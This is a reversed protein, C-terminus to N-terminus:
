QYTGSYDYYPTYQPVTYVYNQPYMYVPQSLVPTIQTLMPMTNMMGMSNMGYTNMGMTNMGMANIAAM